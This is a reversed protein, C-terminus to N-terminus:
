KSKKFAAALGGAVVSLSESDELYFRAANQEGTMTMAYFHRGSADVSHGLLHLTGDARQTAPTGACSTDDFRSVTQEFDGNAHIVLRAQTAANGDADVACNSHWTGAFSNAIFTTNVSSFFESAPDTTNATAATGATALCALLLIRAKM